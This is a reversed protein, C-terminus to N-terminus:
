KQKTKPLQNGHQQEANGKARTEHFLIKLFFSLGM